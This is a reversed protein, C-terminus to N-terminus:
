NEKVTKGLDDKCFASFQKKLEFFMLEREKELPDKTNKINEFLDRQTCDNTEFFQEIFEAVILDEETTEREDNHQNVLDNNYRIDMLFAQAIEPDFNKGAGDILIEVVKWLPLAGERYPRHQDRTADFVDCIAMIRGNLPIERGKTCNPYGKSDWREHHYLAIESAIYAISEKNDGTVEMLMDYGEQPHKKMIEWENGTLKGPKNLISKSISNKGIDHAMAAIGIRRAFRESSGCKQCLRDVLFRTRTLHGATIQDKGEIVRVLCSIMDQQQKENEEALQEIETLLEFTTMTIQEHIESINELAMENGIKEALERAEKIYDVATAVSSFSKQHLYHKSIQRCIELFDRTNDEVITEQFFGGNAIQEDYFEKAKQYCYKIVNDIAEKNLNFIKLLEEGDQSLIAVLTNIINLLNSHVYDEPSNLLKKLQTLFDGNEDLDAFHAVTLVDNKIDLAEEPTFERKEKQVVGIRAYLCSCILRIKEYKEQIGGERQSKLCDQIIALAMNPKNVNMAIVAVKHNANILDQMLRKQEQKDDIDRTKVSKDNLEQLSESLNAESNHSLVFDVFRKKILFSRILQIKLCTDSHQEDYYTGHQITGYYDSLSELEGIFEGESLGVSEYLPEIAHLVLAEMREPSIRKYADEMLEPMSDIASIIEPIGLILTGKEAIESMQERKSASQQIQLRLHAYLSILYRRLEKKEEKNKAEIIAKEIYHIATNIEGREDAEIALFRYYSVNGYAEKLASSFEAQMAHLATIDPQNEPIKVIIESQKDLKNVM